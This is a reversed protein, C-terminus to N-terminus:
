LILNTDRKIFRNIYHTHTNTQMYTQRCTHKHKVHVGLTRLLWFLANNPRLFVSTGIFMDFPVSTLEGLMVLYRHSGWCKEDRGGPPPAEMERGRALDKYLKAM